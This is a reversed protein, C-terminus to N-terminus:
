TRTVDRFTVISSPEGFWVTQAARMEVIATSGDVRLVDLEQSLVTDQLIGIREGEDVRESFLVKAAANAFKVLSDKSLVLTADASCDLALKLNDHAAHIANLAGSNALTRITVSIGSEVRGKILYNWAGLEICREGIGIDDLGTLVVIPIQPAVAKIKELTAMGSSDPLNLDLLIIDPPMSKIAVIAAAISDATQPLVLQSKDGEIGDLVLDRDGPNDEVLLLRVTGPCLGAKSTTCTTGNGKVGEQLTAAGHIRQPSNMEDLSEIVIDRDGQSEEIILIGLETASTSEKM